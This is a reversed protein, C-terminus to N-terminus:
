RDASATRTGHVPAPKMANKIAVAHREARYYKSSAAIRNRGGRFGLRHALCFASNIKVAPHYQGANREDGGITVQAVFFFSVLKETMAKM